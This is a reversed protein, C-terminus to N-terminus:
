LLNLCRRALQAVSRLNQSVQKNSHQSSHFVIRRTVDTCQLEIIQFPNLGIYLGMYLSGAWSQDPPWPEVASRTGLTSILLLLDYLPDYYFMFCHNKPGTFKQCFWTKNFFGGSPKHFIYGRNASNETPPERRAIYIKYTKRRLSFKLCGM